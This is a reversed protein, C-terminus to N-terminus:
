NKLTVIYLSICEVEYYMIRMNCSIHKRNFILLRNTDYLNRSTLYKCTGWAALHLSSHGRKKKLDYKEIRVAYRNYTIIIAQVIGVQITDTSFVTNEM